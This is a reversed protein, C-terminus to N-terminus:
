DLHIKGGTEPKKLMFPLWLILLLVCAFAFFSDLYSVLSGQSMVQLQAIAVKSQEPIHGLNQAWLQYGRDYPSIHSGMDHYTVQMQHSVITSSISTGISSAINRFFNFMGSVDSHLNEPVGIFVIQMIPIFFSMMGFGQVMMSLIIYKESVVPAYSSLMFCGVAFTLLGFFM